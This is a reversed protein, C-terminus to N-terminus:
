YQNEMTKADVVRKERDVWYTSKAKDIKLGLIDKRTVKLIISIPTIICYFVISLLLTTVVPAMIKGGVFMFLKYVPIILAPVFVGILLAAASSGLLVGGAAINGYKCLKISFLALLLSLVLAFIRLDSKTFTTKM